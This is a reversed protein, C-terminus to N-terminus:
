ESTENVNKCNFHMIGKLNISTATLKGKAIVVLWCVGNIPSIFHAIIM